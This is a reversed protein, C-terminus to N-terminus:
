AFKCTFGIISQCNSLDLIPSTLRIALSGLMRIDTVSEISLFGTDAYIQSSIMSENGNIMWEIGQSDDGTDLFIKNGKLTAGTIKSGSTLNGAMNINGDTDLSFVSIGASNKIGLGDTANLTVTGKTIGNTKKLVQLGLSSNISVENYSIDNRLFKYGDALQSSPLGSTIKLTGGNIVIDGNSDLSFTQQNSKNYMQIGQGAVNSGYIKIGNADITVLNNSGSMNKSYLHFHGDTCIGNSTIGMAYTSWNDTSFLIKDDLIRMQGQADQIERMCIGRQNIVVGGDSTITQKSTNIPTTDYVVTNKIIEFEKYTERENNVISSIANTSAFLASLYSMTDNLYTRNSVTIQLSNSYVDHSYAVIRPKAKINFKEHALDILSGLKLKDWTYNLDKCSLMDITDLSFDISPSSKIALLQKAFNYLSDEDVISVKVTEETIFMLLEQRQALTLNSEYSVQTNLIKINSNITDIESQKSIIESKKNDIETQKALLLTHWYNYDHGNAIGQKICTTENNDLATYENNLQTLQLELNSKELQKTSLQTLYGQFVGRKGELVVDYDDLAKLLDESMYETSRFYSFDDIYAEGTVNKSNITIDKDGSIYLRSCIEDIKIKNSLSKILNENDIYIGSEKPLDDYDLIDISHNYTDFLFVCNYYEETKKVIELLNSSSIDWTRYSNLLSDSILNISWSGLLKESLIYNWIGSNKPNENDWSTTKSYLQTTCSFKNLKINSFKYHLDYATIKKTIKGSNDSNDIETITYYEQEQLTDDIFSKLLIVSGSKVLDFNSNKSSHVDNHYYSIEFSLENVSQLQKKINLNLITETLYGIKQYPYYPRCLILEYRFEKGQILDGLIYIM